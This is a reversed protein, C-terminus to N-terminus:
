DIVPSEYILLSHHLPRTNGDSDQRSPMDDRIQMVVCKIPQESRMIMAGNFESPLLEEDAVRVVLNHHPLVFKVRAFHNVYELIIETPVEGTNQCIVVSSFGGAQRLVLPASLKRGQAPTAALAAMSGQVHATQTLIYVPQSSSIQMTAIYGADPLFSPLPLPTVVGPLVDMVWPGFQPYEVEVEAAVPGPNLVLVETSFGQFDILRAPIFFQRAPQAAPVYAARPLTSRFGQPASSATHHFVLPVLPHAATVEVRVQDWAQLEPIDALDLARSALPPLPELAMEHVPDTGTTEMFRVTIPLPARMSNQLILSSALGSGGHGTFAQLIHWEAAADGVELGTYGAYIQEADNGYFFVSTVRRTCDVVGSFEGRDMGPLEALDVSLTQRPLVEVEHIPAAALGRDDLFALHCFATRQLDLNHLRLVAKTAPVDATNQAQLATLGPLIALVAALGLVQLLRWAMKRGPYRM